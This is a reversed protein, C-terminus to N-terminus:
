ALGEIGAKLWNVVDEHQYVLYAFLTPMLQQEAVFNIL